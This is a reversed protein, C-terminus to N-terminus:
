QLCVGYAADNMGMIVFTYLTALYRYINIKPNNWQELQEPTAGRSDTHEKSEIGSELPFDSSTTLIEDRKEDEPVSDPTNTSAM